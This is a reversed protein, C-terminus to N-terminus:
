IAYPKCDSHTTPNFENSLGPPMKQPAIATRSPHASPMNRNQENRKTKKKKTRQAYRSRRGDAVKAPWVAPLSLCETRFSALLSVESGRAGLARVPWCASTAWPSVQSVQLPLEWSQSCSRPPNREARSRSRGKLLGPGRQKSPAGTDMIQTRNINDIKM